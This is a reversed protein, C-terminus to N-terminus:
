AKTFEAKQQTAEEILHNGLQGKPAEKVYFSGMAHPEGTDFGMKDIFWGIPNERFKIEPKIDEVKVFLRRLGTLCSDDAYAYVDVDTALKELEPRAKEVEEAAFRGLKSAIQDKNMHLAMGFSKKNQVNTSYNTRQIQMIENRKKEYCM